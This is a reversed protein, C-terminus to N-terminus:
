EVTVSKALNGLKDVDCGKARATYYAFLQLPTLMTHTVPIHLVYDVPKETQHDGAV